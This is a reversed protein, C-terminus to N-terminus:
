APQNNFIPTTTCCLLPLDVVHWPLSLTHPRPKMQGRAEPRGCGSWNRSCFQFWTFVRSAFFPKSDCFFLKALCFIETQQTPFYSFRVISLCALYYGKMSGRRIASVVILPVRQTTLDDFGSLLDSATENVVREVETGMSNACEEFNLSIPMPPPPFFFILFISYSYSHKIKPIFSPASHVRIRSHVIRSNKERVMVHLATKVMSTDKENIHCDMEPQDKLDGLRSLEKDWIDKSITHGKIPAIKQRISM